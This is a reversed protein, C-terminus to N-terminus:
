TSLPLVWVNMSAVDCLM